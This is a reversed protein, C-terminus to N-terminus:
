VTMFGVKVVLSSKLDLAKKEFRYCNIFASSGSNLFM